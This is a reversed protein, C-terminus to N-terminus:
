YPPPLMPVSPPKTLAEAAAVQNRVPADRKAYVAQRRGSIKFLGDSAHPNRVQAYGAEDLRHPIRRRNKRDELWERFAPQARGAIMDITVVAPWGLADLADALEADEPANSAAAIEWFAATKPPPAKPNFESLNLTALHHTVIENGGDSFWRYLDSWYESAFEDRTRTSWAVYHRRDDAPLYIGDTKHNTTIIVGCVNQVAHERLHKEDVRLVDPPAATYSNMHDYFAFRDIEGLDRAENIRLVVSKLFGNFRGTVQQPSVEAFNWPGVAHKIPELITDKGIGQNGGLILAHNIKQGPKQVRHALWRIIHEADDGYVRHVHDLWPAADGAKPSITPPRYLNFTRCGPRHIWGGDAILRNEVILPEGPAWTMQEVAQHADLWVNAAIPKERMPLQVAGLRANVSSAPWMERTPIFIYTHGPLYAVFDDFEDPLPESEDDIEDPVTPPPPPPLDPDNEFTGQQLTADAGAAIQAVAASFMEHVTTNRKLVKGVWGLKQARDILSGVTYSGPRWKYDFSRWKTAEVEPTVLVKNERSGTNHAIRWVALGEDGCALKCAMGCNAWSDHHEFEDRDALWQVLESLSKPDTEGFPRAGENPDGRRASGHRQCHEVLAAPAEHPASIGPMAVYARGDVSSPPVLIFGNGARIDIVGQVLPPQRLGSETTRFLIHWGGSQSQFHPPYVPLGRDVCWKAWTAWAADRGVNKVDVDVVILGSAGAVLGWNCGRNETAWQTWVTPDNSCNHVFSGVIGSPDKTNAPLPFLAAGISRYFELERPIVSSAECASSTYIM